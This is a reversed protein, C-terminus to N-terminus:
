GSSLFDVSVGNTTALSRPGPWHANRVSGSRSQFPRGSLTLAGYPHPISQSKLLAPGSFGQGFTPPGGEM